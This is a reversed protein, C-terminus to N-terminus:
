RFRNIIILTRKLRRNFYMTTENLDARIDYAMRRLITEYLQNLSVSQGFKNMIKLKIEDQLKKNNVRM